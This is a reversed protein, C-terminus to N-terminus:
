AIEVVLASHDSANSKRPEHEYRCDTVRGNIAPTGFVHDLRFGNKKQPSFWSYERLAPHRTRWLDVFGVDTMRAMYEPGVYATGKPDKDLDNTGTNFDGIFLDPADAASAAQIVAQWYPIKAQEGPLYVGVIDVSQTNARWLHQQNLQASALGHAAAIQGRSAILVTNNRPEAPPHSFTYGAASLAAMISEGAAGMQFETLVLIDAQFGLLTNVMRSRNAQAGGGHRINWTVIKLAM